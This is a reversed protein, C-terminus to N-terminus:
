GNSTGVEEDFTDVPAPPHAFKSARQPSYKSLVDFWTWGPKAPLMETGVYEVTLRLAELLDYNAAALVDRESELRLVARQLNSMPVGVRNEEIRCFDETVNFKKGAIIPDGAADETYETVVYIRGTFGSQLLRPKQKTM